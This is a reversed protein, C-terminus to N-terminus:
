AAWTTVTPLVSGAITMTKGSPWLFTGTTLGTATGDISIGTVTGGTVTIFTHRWFPNLLATGLVFTPSTTHGRVQNGAIIECNGGGSISFASPVTASDNLKLQGGLGNNADQIHNSGFGAFNGVSEIDVQGINVPITIGVNGDCQIGSGCGELSAYSISLGHKDNGNGGIFLGFGCNLVKITQASTHAYVAVGYYTGYVCVEGIFAEDNNLEVPMWLGTAWSHTPVTAAINAITDFAMGAYKDVSATACGRLDIGAITPNLPWIITLGKIVPTHNNWTSAVGSPADTPGGIVSPVGFTGDVTLGTLMSVLVAAGNAQPVTSTFMPPAIGGEGFNFAVSTKQAGPGTFPILPIQSNYHLSNSTAKQTAAALCYIFPPGTVEAYGGNAAAYTRALAYAANFAATDDSGYIAQTTISAGAASGLTIQTASVFSITTVLAAGAGAGGAILISKGTDATTFNASVSTATITGNLVLDTIIKGNGRAGSTIVSFQYPQVGGGASGSGGAPYFTM